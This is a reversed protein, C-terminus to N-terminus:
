AKRHLATRYMTVDRGEVWYLGVAYKGRSPPPPPKTVLNCEVRAVGHVTARWAGRGHSKGPLFVPTPLWKRRWPIKRVWPSFRPRGPPALLLSGAQRICCVYSIRTGHRPQSSDRSSPMAVSEPIRVQLIGMSLPPQHAATWPTVLLQIPSFRSPM